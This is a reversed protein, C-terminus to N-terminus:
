PLVMRRWVSPNLGTHRTFVRAFHSADAFGCAAAVTAISKDPRRLLSMARDLRAYNLWTHPALGTSKRFSRAFHDVSVGCAAAVEDLSQRGALDALIMEKARKEQWPALGGRIPRAVDRGGYVSVLHSVLALAVHDTFLRNAEGPARLAPLLTQGLGWLVDDRFGVGPDFRLDGAPSLGAEETLANMASRQLYFLLAHVPSDIM